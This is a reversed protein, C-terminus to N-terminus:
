RYSCQFFMRRIWRLTTRKFFKIIRRQNTAESMWICNYLKKGFRSLHFSFMCERSDLIVNLTGNSMFTCFCYHNLIIRCSTLLVDVKFMFLKPFLSKPCFYWFWFLRVIKLFNYHHKNSFNGVFLAFVLFHAKPWVIWEKSFKTVKFFNIISNSKKLLHRQHKQLPQYWRDASFNEFVVQFSIKFRNFKFILTNLYSTLIINKSKSIEESFEFNHFFHQIYFSPPIVLVLLNHLKKKSIQIM